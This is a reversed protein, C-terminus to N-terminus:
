LSLAEPLPAFAPSLAFGAGPAVPELGLSQLM